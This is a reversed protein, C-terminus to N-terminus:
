VLRSISYRIRFLFRRWWGQQKMGKLKSIVEDLARVDRHWISESENKEIFSASHKRISELPGILEQLHM